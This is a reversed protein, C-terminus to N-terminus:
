PQPKPTPKVAPQKKLSEAAETGAEEAAQSPHKAKPLSGSAVGTAMGTLNDELYNMCGTLCITGDVDGRSQAFRLKKEVETMVTDGWENAIDLRAGGKHLAELAELHGNGAAASAATQTKQFVLKNLTPDNNQLFLEVTPVHGRSAAILLPTVGRNDEVDLSAGYEILLAAVAPQDCAAALHLPRTGDDALLTSALAPNKKLEKEVLYLDGKEIGTTFSPFLREKLRDAAAVAMGVGVVTVMGATNVVDRGHRRAKEAFKNFRDKFNKFDM